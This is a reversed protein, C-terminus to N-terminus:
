ESCCFSSIAVCYWIQRNKCLFHLVLLTTKFSPRAVCSVRQWEEAFFVWQLRSCYLSEKPLKKLQQQFESFISILFFTDSNVLFVLTNLFLFATNMHSRESLLALKRPSTSISLPSNRQFMKFVFEFHKLCAAVLVTYYAQSWFYKSM